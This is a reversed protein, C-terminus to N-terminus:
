LDLVLRDGRCRSVCPMVLRGEAQEDTSLYMDRHEPPGELVGTMCTGCIGEECSTEIEIGAARLVEVITQDPGVHLALGSRALMLDFGEGATEVDVPASFYESHRQRIDWGSQAAVGDVMAM